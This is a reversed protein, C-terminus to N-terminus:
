VLLSGFNVVDEGYEWLVDVQLCIDLAFDCCFCIELGFVLYLRETTMEVCM